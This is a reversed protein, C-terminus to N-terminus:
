EKKQPIKVGKAVDEIQRIRYELLVATNRYEQAKARINFIYAALEDSNHFMFIPDSSFSPKKLGNKFTKVNQSLWFSDQSVSEIAYSIQTSDIKDQTPQQASLNISAFLTLALFLLRM